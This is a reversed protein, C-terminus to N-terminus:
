HELMSVQKEYHHLEEIIKEYSIIIIARPLMGAEGHKKLFFMFVLPQILSILIINFYLLYTSISYNFLYNSDTFFCRGYTTFFRDKYDLNQTAFALGNHCFFTRIDNQRFFYVLTPRLFDTKITSIKRLLLLVM